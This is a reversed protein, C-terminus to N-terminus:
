SQRYGKRIEYCVHIKKNRFDEPITKLTIDTIQYKSKILDSLKFGRKNNSFFLVGDDKLAEMSKEILFEQHNEVSFTEKMKKSNSFTPPDLFIFDFQKRPVEKLYELIDANIFEHKHFDIGNLAYNRKSWELYTKSLDVNTTKAGGIAAALGISSTYSFLNLIKKDKVHKTFWERMYRHDLFLGTDLYDTLNVWIKLPGEQIVFYDKKDELKKYQETATQGKREKIIIKNEKLGEINKIAELTDGIVSRESDRDDTQDYILVHDKYIDVILPFEPIDREYLRYAEINHRKAWKKKHKYLKVLRGLIINDM